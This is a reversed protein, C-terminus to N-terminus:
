SSPTFTGASNWTGQRKTFTPHYPVYRFMYGFNSKGVNTIDWANIANVGAQTLSTAGSFMGSMNTVSGTNWSALPSLDTLLTANIFMYRMDTVSGTDWNALGSLDALSHAGYFMSNMNTVSGTDWNALGSLDTLSTAGFFMSYMNTVRGTDWNALGSLDALSTAGHFMDRMDTVSGTDWNALGSLDTLSTAGSFMSSMDTVSGTDWSALPSLDTLSTAGSFMSSMRTVSSTDWNALPSLDTLSTTRYFMAFMDTVSGTDWDALGSLDALSTAGSFMYGMYTVSSTDWNALPSLDTLSTANQFMSNMDMVGSIDWDALGSLDTLSTAGFFMLGMYMVSSTDWNALGFLDTLATFNCFMSNSVLNMFIEKAETYVYIIGADNTNDFWIYVPYRSTALSITNENAPTFNELLTDSMRIAKILTDTDNASKTTGAALSKLKANVNEGTDLRAVTTAYVDITTSLLNNNNQALYALIASEDDFYIKKNNNDLTYWMSIPTTDTYTGNDAIYRCSSNEVTNPQETDYIPYFKAYMGYDYGEGSTPAAQAMFGVSVTNGDYTKTFVGSLNSEGMSIYDVNVSTANQLTDPVVALMTGSSIGYNIEVKVKSAGNFTKTEMIQEGNAYSGNQVGDTLNSTEIVEPTAATYTGDPGCTEKYAVLNKAEHNAFQYTSDAHYRVGIQDPHVPTDATSPHVLTYIVQGSYTDAPQTKSIYAAYTTTLKVGGTTATMDTMSNKHAVKVYENPVVHYQSFSAPTAGQEAQSPLDVNPASDITFANTSTTDGSDQSIALKMAWNSVDPNGATTAIGSVITANSSATTGVLKNSSEGGIENGTYGAAYIAFGENDNCFAHLTTTGINNKYLGNEIETSHSDMGTGSITCSVPVTINVQDVISDNDASVSISSLITGVSITAIMLIGALKSVNSMKM